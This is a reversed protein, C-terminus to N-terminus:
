NLMQSATLMFPKIIADYENKNEDVMQFSGEMTGIPTPLPCFSTYEFTEGPRLKPQQGVVGPGHVDETNGNGDTIHWYRSLLQTSLSGNNVITVHYSFFFYYKIPNSRDPIYQSEVTIKIRNDM